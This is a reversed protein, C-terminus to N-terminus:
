YQWHFSGGLTYSSGPEISSMQAIPVSLRLSIGAQGHSMSIGVSSSVLRVFPLADDGRAVGMNLAFFTAPAFPVGSPRGGLKWEASVASDASAYDNDFGPVVSSATLSYRESSLLKDPAFQGNMQLSMILPLNELPRSGEFYVHWIRFDQPAVGAWIADGSAYGQEGSLSVQWEAGPWQRKIDISAGFKRLWYSSVRITAEDLYNGVDSYNGHLALSLRTSQSRYLMRALSLRGNRTDGSAQFDELIGHVRNQYIQQNYGLSLLWDGVTLDYGLSGGAAMDTDQKDLNSNINFSLSDLLGFLSGIGVNLQADAHSHHDYYRSNLLLGASTHRQWDAKGILTSGGQGVGPALSLHADMGPLRSLNEMAQELDRLNVLDGPRAPLAMHLLRLPLGDAQMAELRGPVLLLRLEGQSIDQEPLLVRSTVYGKAMLWNFMEAQLRKIGALSYCRGQQQRAWRVLEGGFPQPKGDLTDIVLHRVMFCAEQTQVDPVRLTETQGAAPLQMDQFRRQQDQQRQEQLRNQQQQLPTPAAVAKDPILLCIALWVCLAHVLHIRCSAVAM